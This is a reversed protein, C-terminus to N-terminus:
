PKEVRWPMIPVTSISNKPSGEILKDSYVLYIITQRKKDLFRVVHLKKFLISTSKSFVEEGAKLPEHIEVPGIQRCAISANSLDTALGLGGTVGGKKARSMHCAVGSIKPDDFAEIVIKDDPGLLKFATDVSGILEATASIPILLACLPLLWYILLQTWHSKM